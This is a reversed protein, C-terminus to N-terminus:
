RPVEDDVSVDVGLEKRLIETLSSGDRLYVWDGIGGGEKFHMGEQSVVWDFRKPGSIPSSLWIQKNPPQKNLVFTNEKATVELVGAQLQNAVKKVHRRIRLNYSVSYDVEIGPDKEQAEELRQLLEGLYHDAREHFEEISLDTAKGPEDTVQSEKPKPDESDPMIGRM